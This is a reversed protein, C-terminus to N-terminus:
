LLDELKSIAVKGEVEQRTSFEAKEKRELYWKSNDIDGNEISETINLKAKIAPNRKLQEKREAFDPNKNCYDYLATHSIDAYCCCQEDTLGKIFGYELKRLVEETMVTPRGANSRKRPRGPKGPKKKASM